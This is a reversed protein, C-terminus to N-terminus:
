PTDLQVALTYRNTRAAAQATAAAAAPLVDITYDTGDVLTM